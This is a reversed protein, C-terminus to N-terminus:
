PAAAPLAARLAGAAGAAAMAGARASATPWRGGAAAEVTARAGDALVGLAAPPPGAVADTPLAQAVTVLEDEARAQFEGYGPAFAKEEIAGDMLLEQVMAVGEIPGRPGPVTQGTARVTDQEFVLGPINESRYVDGARPQGPMIMGAPGDEGALWSGDHDAVRGDEYNAVDEPLRVNTIRTPDSFQPRARDVRTTDPAIPLCGTDQENRACGAAATGGPETTPATADSGGSGTGSCGAVLAPALGV